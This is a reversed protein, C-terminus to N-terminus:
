SMFECVQIILRARKGVACKGWELEGVAYETSAKTCAFQLSPQDM